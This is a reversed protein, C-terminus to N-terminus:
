EDIIEKAEFTVPFRPNYNSDPHGQPGGNFTKISAVSRIAEEEAFATKSTAYRVSENGNDRVTVYWKKLIMVM